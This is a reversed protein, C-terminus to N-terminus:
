SDHTLNQCFKCRDKVALGLIGDAKVYWGSVDTPGSSLIEWPSSYNDKYFPWGGVANEPVMVIYEPHEINTLSTGLITVPIRIDTPEFQEKNERIRRNSSNLQVYVLTGPKYANGMSKQSNSEVIPDFKGVGVVASERISWSRRGVYRSPINKDQSLIWYSRINNPVEVFYGEDHVSLVITNITVDDLLFESSDTHISNLDKTCLVTISQGPQLSSNKNM